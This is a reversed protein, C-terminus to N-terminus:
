SYPIAMVALLAPPAGELAPVVPAAMQRCPSATAPPRVSLSSSEAAGVEAAAAVQLHTEATAAMRKSQAMVTLVEPSCGSSIEALEVAEVMVLAEAALAVLVDASWLVLFILKISM